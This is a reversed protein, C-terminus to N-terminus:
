RSKKLKSDKALSVVMTSVASLKVSYESPYSVHRNEKYMWQRTGCPKERLNPVSFSLATVSATRAVKM